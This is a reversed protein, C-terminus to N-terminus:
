NEFLQVGLSGKNPNDASGNAQMRVIRNFKARTDVHPCHEPLANWMKPGSYALSKKFKETSPKRTKILKKNHSRTRVAGERM